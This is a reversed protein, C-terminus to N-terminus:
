LPLNAEQDPHHRTSHGDQSGWGTDLALTSGGAADQPTVQPGPVSGPGTTRRGWRLLTPVCRLHASNARVPTKSQAILEFTAGRRTVARVPPIVLQAFATAPLPQPTIPHHMMGEGRERAAPSLYRSQACPCPHSRQHTNTPTEHGRQQPFELAWPRTQARSLWLADTTAAWSQHLRTEQHSDGGHGSLVGVGVGRIIEPASGPSRGAGTSGSRSGRLASAGQPQVLGRWLLWGAGDALRKGVLRSM